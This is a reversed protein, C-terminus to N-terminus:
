DNIGGHLYGKFELIEKLVMTVQTARLKLMEPAFDGPDASRTASCTETLLLPSLVIALPPLAQPMQIVTQTSM